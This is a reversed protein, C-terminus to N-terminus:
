PKLADLSISFSLQIIHASLDVNQTIFAADSLESADVTTARYRYGLDLNTTPTVSWRVGTGVQYALGRGSASNGASNGKISILGLGIGGGGYVSLNDDVPLDLWVNGLVALDSFNFETNGCKLGACASNKARSNLHTVELEARVNNNIKTGVFGSVFTGRTSDATELDSVDFSNVFGSGLGGGIYWPSNHKAAEGAISLGSSGALAVGALLMCRLSLNNM